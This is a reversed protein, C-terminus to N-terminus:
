KLDEADSNLMLQHRLEKILLEKVMILERQQSILLEQKIVLSKLAKLHKVIHHCDELEAMEIIANVIEEM